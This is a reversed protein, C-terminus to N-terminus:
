LLFFLLLSVFNGQQTHMLARRGAQRYTHTDGVLFKRIGSGNEHFKTHTDHWRLENWSCIEYIGQMLLVLM